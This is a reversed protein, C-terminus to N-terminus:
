RLKRTKKDCFGCWFVRRKDNEKIHKTLKVNCYPCKVGVEKKGNLIDKISELASAYFCFNQEMTWIDGRSYKDPTKGRPPFFDREAKKIARKILRFKENTNM